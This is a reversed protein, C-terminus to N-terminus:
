PWSTVARVFTSIAAAIGLVLALGAVTAARDLHRRLPSPDPPAPDVQGTRARAFVAGITGNGREYHTTREAMRSALMRPTAPANM